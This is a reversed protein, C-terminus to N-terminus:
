ILMPESPFATLKPSKVTALNLSAPEELENLPTKLPPSVGVLLLTISKM